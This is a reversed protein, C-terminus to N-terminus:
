RQIDDPLGEERPREHNLHYQPKTEIKCVGGLRNRFHKDSNTNWGKDHWDNPVYLGGHDQRLRAVNALQFYGAGMAPSIRFVPWTSVKQAADLIYCPYDGPKTNNFFNKSYDKDLSIRTTTICRREDKLPGALQAALDDLFDPAYVHDCDAFLIWDAKSAALQRNRVVGRAGKIEDGCVTRRIKIPARGLFCEHVGFEERIYNRNKFDTLVAETTPDGNNPQYAIDITLEHQEGGWRNWTTQQVLSSLMWCLRRQFFVCAVAIDIKM